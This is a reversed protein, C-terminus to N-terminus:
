FQAADDESGLSQATPDKTVLLPPSVTQTQETSETAPDAQPKSPTVIPLPALVVVTATATALVELTPTITLPPEFSAVFSAIAKTTGIVPAATTPALVRFDLPTPQGTLESFTAGLSRSVPIDTM